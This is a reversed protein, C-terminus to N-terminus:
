HHRLQNLILASGYKGHLIMYHFIRQKIPLTEIPYNEWCERIAKTQAFECIAERKEMFSLNSNSVIRVYLRCYDIAMRKARLICDPDEENKAIVTITTLFQQFRQRKEKSFTGTISEQNEKRYCYDTNEVVSIVRAVKYAALNFITDESLIELFVLGNEEIMKRRYLSMCVSMPFSETEVDGPAHGFLNKRVECIDEKSNFTKGKLPHPKCALVTKGAMDCHGSVVIDAGTYTAAEYLREYMKPKVWDDSDLFGIYEGTAIKMGSNRAPGLGANKQHIVKIRFDNEKYKDAIIGCADPSGDDVLIIEINRLTQKLLSDVCEALYKEARYIPVVISVKPIM